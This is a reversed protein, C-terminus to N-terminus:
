SSPAAPPWRTPGSTRWCCCRASGARQRRAAPGTGERGGRHRDRRGRGRQHLRDNGSMAATWPWRRFAAVKQFTASGSSSATSSTRYAQERDGRHADPRGPAVEGPGGHDWLHGGAGGDRELPVGARRVWRRDPNGSPCCASATGALWGRGTPSAVAAVAVDFHPDSYPRLHLRADHLQHTGTDVTVTRRQDAAAHGGRPQDGAAGPDPDPQARDHGLRHAALGARRRADDPGQHPSGAAGDAGGGVAPQPVVALDGRHGAQHEQTREAAAAIFIEPSAFSRAAASHHWRDVGRRLRLRGPTRHWLLDREDARTGGATVPSDWTASCRVQPQDFVPRSRSRRPTSDTLVVRGPLSIMAEGSIKM